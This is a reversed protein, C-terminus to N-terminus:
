NQKRKFVDIINPILVATQNKYNQYETLHGWKADSKKELMPIGSIKTLLLAVFVPSILTLYQWGTLVNISLIAIGIWILIEGLYNPHRSYKWLGTNIFGNSQMKRFTTKQQDSIIEISFGVVFILTGIIDWIGFASEKKSSLAALGAGFTVFIWLGQLSWTMLLKLFNTKINDFRTDTGSLLIRTFLFAGLRIAWVAVAILIIWARIDGSNVTTLVLVVMTIYTLSGTLDFYKETKYIYSPIFAIWQIVFILVGCMAFLPLQYLYISNQSGALVLVSAAIITTLIVGITILNIRLM